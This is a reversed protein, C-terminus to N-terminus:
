VAQADLLIESSVYMMPQFNHRSNRAATETLLTREWDSASSALIAPISRFSTAASAPSESSVVDAGDPRLPRKPRMVEDEDEDAGFDVGDMFLAEDGGENGTREEPILALLEGHPWQPM